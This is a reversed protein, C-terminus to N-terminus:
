DTTICYYGYDGSTKVAQYSGAPIDFGVKYVGSLEKMPETAISKDAPLIKARSIEIVDGEGLTIYDCVEFLGNKLIDHDTPSPHVAYYGSDLATMKYEGPKIDKGVIYNGDKLADDFIDNPAQCMECTEIPLYKWNTEGSSVYKHDLKPITTTKIEGCRECTQEKEGNIECTAERLVKDKGFQHGLAEETNVRQEGCVSCRQQTKVADVCTQEQLVDIDEWKHGAAAAQVKGCRVCTADDVCTAESIKHGFVCTNISFIFAIAIVIVIGGAIYAFVTTPKRPTKGQPIPQTELPEGAPPPYHSAHNRRKM